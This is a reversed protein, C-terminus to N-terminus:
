SLTGEAELTNLAERIQAEATDRGAKLNGQENAKRITRVLGDVAKSLDYQAPKKEKTYDWFPVADAEEIYWDAETRKKKMRFQDEKESFTVPAHAVAWAILAKRRSSRPMAAALKSLLTIDGQGADRAHYLCLVATEHIDRDMKAGRNRISTIRKQIDRKDTM